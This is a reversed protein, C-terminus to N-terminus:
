PSHLDFDQVAGGGVGALTKEGEEDGAQSAFTHRCMHTRTCASVNSKSYRTRYPDVHADLM